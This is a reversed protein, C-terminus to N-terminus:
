KHIVKEKLTISVPVHNKYKEYPVNDFIEMHEMNVWTFNASQTIKDLESILQGNSMVLCSEEGITSPHSYKCEAVDWPRELGNSISHIRGNLYVEM